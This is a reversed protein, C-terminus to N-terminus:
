ESHGKKGCDACLGSLVIHDNQLVFGYQAQLAERLTDLHARDMTLVAGCSQCRLHHHGAEAAISYIKGEDGMDALVILEADCLVDLARYVTSQDITPDLMKVRAYIAGITAHGGVECVADLVILRQPTVRYGKAHLQQIYDKNEHSM